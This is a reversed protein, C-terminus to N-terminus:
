RVHLLLCLPSPDEGNCEGTELNMILHHIYNDQHIYLMHVVDDDSVVILHVGGQQCRGPIEPVTEWRGDNQFRIGQLQGSPNQFFIVRGSTVIGGSLRSSPPIIIDHSDSLSFEEWEEEVSNYKYSRLIGGTDM